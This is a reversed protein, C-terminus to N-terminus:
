ICHLEGRTLKTIVNMYMPVYIPMCAHMYNNCQLVLAYAGLATCSIHAMCADRTGVCAHLEM